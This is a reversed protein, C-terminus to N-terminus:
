GDIVAQVDKQSKTYSVIILLGDQYCKWSPNSILLGTKVRYM